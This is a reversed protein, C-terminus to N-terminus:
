LFLKHINSWCKILNLKIQFHRKTLVVQRWNWPHTSCIFASIRMILVLVGLKWSASWFVRLVSLKLVSVLVNFISERSTDLCLSLDRSSWAQGNGRRKIKGEKFIWSLTSLMQPESGLSRKATSVEATRNKIRGVGTEMNLLQAAKALCKQRGKDQRRTVLQEKRLRIFPRKRSKSM